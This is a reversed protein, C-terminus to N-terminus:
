RSKRWGVPDRAQRGNTAGERGLGAGARVVALNALLIEACRAWTHNRAHEVCPARDLALAGLCARRLDSDLVGTRGPVVVDVPGPVPFAAVPLGCANAELMVVGFTDTTSPFVFVDAGAYHRALDDGFRFGAWHVDPHSRALRERAPGDGVVLKSGPLELGLFADLNKEVAVRGAYLFVPRPLDYPCEEPCRPRFLKADVGRLWQVLRCFGRAELESKLSATPVLTAQAAGHFWRMLRYTLTTPVAAYARLYEPFRTHFSTTFPRRRRRCWGRAALGLPGETAIHVAEPALRDLRARVGRGAAVALRIEPYRPCPVTRFLDPSVLDMQHGRGELEERCRSLTTTVGNVQPLWADSVLAIRLKEVRVAPLM